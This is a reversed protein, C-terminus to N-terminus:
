CRSALESGSSCKRTEALSWLAKDLLCCTHRVGCPRCGKKEWFLPLVIYVCIFVYLYLHLVQTTFYGPPSGTSPGFHTTLSM